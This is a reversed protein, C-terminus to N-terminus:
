SGHAKIGGDIIRGSAFSSHGELLINLKAELIQLENQIDVLLCYKDVQDLGVPLLLAFFKRALEDCIHVVLFVPIM